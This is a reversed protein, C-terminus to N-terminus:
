RPKELFVDLVRRTNKPNRHLAGHGSDPDEIAVTIEAGQERLWDGTRRMGPIGDRDANPDRGGAVTIWRTGKLPQEGYDGKVLARNPPYDLSVGGSSAM